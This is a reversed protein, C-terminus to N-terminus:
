EAVVVVVDAAGAGAGVAFSTTSASFFDASLAPRNAAWIDPYRAPSSPEIAADHVAATVTASAPPPAGHGGGFRRARGSRGIGVRPCQEVRDGGFVTHDVAVPQHGCVGGRVVVVQDGRRHALM